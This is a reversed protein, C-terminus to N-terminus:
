VLLESPLFSNRSSAWGPLLWSPDSGWVWFVLSAWTREKGCIVQSGYCFVRFYSFSAWVCFSPAGWPAAQGSAEESGGLRAGQATFPFGSEGNLGSTEQLGIKSLMKKKKLSLAILFRSQLSHLCIKLIFNLLRGSFLM